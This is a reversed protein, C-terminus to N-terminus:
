SSCRVSRLTNGLCFQPEILIEDPVMPLGTENLRLLQDVWDVAIRAIRDHLRTVHAIWPTSGGGLSCFGIEDPIAWGDDKLNWYYGEHLAIVVEPRHERVWRLFRARDQMSGDLIPVKRISSHLLSQEYLWAAHRLADNTDPGPQRFLAGGIVEYGLARCEGWARRVLSFINIDVSHIPLRYEGVGCGVACYRSWDIDVVIEDSIIPSVLVGRIGRSYLVADLKKGSRYDGLDFADVKYGLEHARARIAPLYTGAFNGRGKVTMTVFALTSAADGAPRKWRHAALVRLAPDPRYGLEEAKAMVRRRTAESVRPSGSLVRAVTSKAVGCAAAIDALTTRLGM